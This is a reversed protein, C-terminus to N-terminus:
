DRVTCNSQPLLVEDPPPHDQGNYTPQICHIYNTSAFPQKPFSRSGAIADWLFALAYSDLAGGYGGM